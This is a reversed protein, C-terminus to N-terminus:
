AVAVKGTNSKLGALITRCLATATHCAWANGIQRVVDSKTGAFLYGAPFGMAAALEHPQLMRFRVDTGDPIVLALRDRTTVTGVPESVPRALAAGNSCYPMTFPECLGFKPSAPLTPIPEDVAHTRPAQGRREGYFPVLFPEVIAHHQGGASVTTLPDDIDQCSRAIQDDDTGRLSVLFPEVLSIAGKTSITPAPYATDRPVGGSQQPLLFPGAGFRKLGAEIRRMTNASLPKKRQSIPQSPLSWDIVERAARWPATARLLSLGHRKAHTPEPWAIARGRTAQIFLRRRTTADGYDAANLTRAEVRYGLSELAALFARYTEGKRSRVPRMKADLPGWTQFEVVNEILVHDVRLLECWRLVNWASARSQDNMPRGGRANSHHTCEVGAILLHLRGGPVVARPDVSEVSMCLHAADPYNQQHTKVAVPWHNVALMNLDAGLTRAALYVGTTAGGAGCFLDAVHLTM